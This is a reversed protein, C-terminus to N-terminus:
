FSLYGYAALGTLVHSVMAGTYAILALAVGFRALTFRAGMFFVTCAFVGMGLKVVLFALEGTELLAAMLDNAETTVGTRIWILTAIADIFNLAFLLCIAYNLNMQTKIHGFM